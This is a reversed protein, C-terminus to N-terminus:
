FLPCDLVLIKYEGGGGCIHFDYRDHLRDFLGDGHHLDLLTMGLHLRPVIGPPSATKVLVSDLGDGLMIKM